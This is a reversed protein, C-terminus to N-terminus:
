ISKQCVQLVVYGKALIETHISHAQGPGNEEVQSHLRSKSNARVQEKAYKLM